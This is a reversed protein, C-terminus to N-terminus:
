LGGIQCGDVPALVRRLQDVVHAYDRAVRRARTRGIALYLVLGLGPLFVLTLLWSLTASPARREFALLTIAAGVHLVVVGATLLADLM